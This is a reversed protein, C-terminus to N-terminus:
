DRGDVALATESPLHWVKVAPWEARLLRLTIGVRSQDDDRPVHQHRGRLCYSLRRSDPNGIPGVFDIAPVTTIFVDAIPQATPPCPRGSQADWSLTDGYSLWDEAMITVSRLFGRALVASARARAAPYHSIHAPRAVVALGGPSLWDTQNENIIIARELLLLRCIPCSVQDPHTRITEPLKHRCTGRRALECQVRILEARDMRGYQECVRAYDLRPRDDEPSVVVARLAVALRQECAAEVKGQEDLWDAYVLRPADDEPVNAIALLFAAEDGM